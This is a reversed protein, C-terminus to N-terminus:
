LPVSLTYVLGEARPAETADRSTWVLTGDSTTAVLVYPTNAAAVPRSGQVSLVVAPEITVDVSQTASGAHAPVLGTSLSLAAIVIAARRRLCM